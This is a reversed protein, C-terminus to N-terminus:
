PNNIDKITINASLRKCGACCISKDDMLWFTEGNCAKCFYRPRNELKPALGKVARLKFQLVSVVGGLRVCGLLDRLEGLSGM